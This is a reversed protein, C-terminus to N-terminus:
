PNGQADHRSGHRQRGRSMRFRSVSAESLHSFFRAFGPVVDCKTFVLYVPVYSRLHNLVESLRARVTRALHERRSSDADLMDRMSVCVVVGNLAKGPRVRILRRLLARWLGHEESEPVGEAYAGPTDIFVAQNAFLIETRETSTITYLHRDAQENLPFQLGSNLLLSTKGCNSPGLVLYWPLAYRSRSTPGYFNSTTVTRIASKVLHRIHGFEERVRARV